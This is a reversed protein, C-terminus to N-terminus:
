QLSLFHCCIFVILDTHVMLSVNRLNIRSVFVFEMNEEHEGCPKYENSTIATTQHCGALSNTSCYNTFVHM